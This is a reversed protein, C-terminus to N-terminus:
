DYGAGSGPLSAMLPFAYFIYRCKVFATNILKFEGAFM